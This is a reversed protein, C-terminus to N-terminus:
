KLYDAVNSADVKVAPVYKDVLEEDNAAALLLETQAAALEEPKLLYSWRWFGGTEIVEMSAEGPDLAAMLYSPDDPAVGADLLAQYSGHSADDVNGIWIRTDPSGILQSRTNNYGEDRSRGALMQLKGDPLVERFGAETGDARCKGAETGPDSLVAAQADSANNAKMWEAVDRGLTKSQEECDWLVAHEIGEWKSAYGVMPIGANIAKRTIPVVSDNQVPFAMIAKVDGRQIYADWNAIQRQVDWQPDDVLFEYGADEVLPRMKTIVDNWIAINLGAYSMAVAGRRGSGQDGVGCGALVTTTALIAMSKLATKRVRRRTSKTLM